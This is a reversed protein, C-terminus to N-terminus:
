LDLEEPPSALTGGPFRTFEVRGGSKEEVQDLFYYFVKTAPETVNNTCAAKLKIVDSDGQGAASLGAAALLAFVLLFCTKKM